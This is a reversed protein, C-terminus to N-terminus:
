LFSFNAWSRPWSSTKRVKDFFSYTWAWVIPSVVGLLSSLNNVAASLAGLGIEGPDPGGAAVAEAALKKSAQIGQKTVMPRICHGCIEFVVSYVTQAVVYWM